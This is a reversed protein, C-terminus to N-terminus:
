GYYELNLFDPEGEIGLEQMYTKCIYMLEEMSLSQERENLNWPYNEEFVVSADTDCDGDPQCYVFRIGTERTMVNAIVAGAGQTGTLDCSYEEFFNELDYEASTHQLMAEYMEVESESKCFTSKHAKIFEILKTDSCDSGFGFGYVFSSRMM